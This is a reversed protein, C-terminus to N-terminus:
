QAERKLSNRHIILGWTLGFLSGASICMVIYAETRFHFIDGLMVALVMLGFLFLAESKAPKYLERIKKIFSM